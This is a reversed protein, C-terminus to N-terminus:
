KDLAINVWQPSRVQMESKELASVVIDDTEKQHTRGRFVTDCGVVVETLHNESHLSIAVAKDVPLRVDDRRVFRHGGSDLTVGHKTLTVIIGSDVISRVEVRPRLLIRFGEGSVLRTEMTVDYQPVGYVNMQVAATDRLTTVSTSPDVGDLSTLIGCGITPNRGM